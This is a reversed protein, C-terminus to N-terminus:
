CLELLLKLKACIYCMELQKPSVKDPGPGHAVSSSLQIVTGPHINTDITTLRLLVLVQSSPTTVVLEYSLGVATSTWSMGDSLPNDTLHHQSLALSLSDM